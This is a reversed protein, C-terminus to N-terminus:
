TKCNRSGDVGFQRSEAVKQIRGRAEGFFQEMTPSADLSCRCPADDQVSHLCADEDPNDGASAQM